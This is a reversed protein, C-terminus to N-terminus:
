GGVHGTLGHHHEPRPLGRELALRDLVHVVRWAPLSHAVEIVPCEPTFDDVLTFCRFSRGDFLADSVFDM